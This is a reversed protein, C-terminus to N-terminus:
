PLAPSTTPSRHTRRRTASVVTNCTAVTRIATRGTRPIARLIAMMSGASAFSEDLLLKYGAPVGPPLMAGPADGANVDTADGAADVAVPGSDVPTGGTGRDAGTAADSGGSGPNSGGSGSSADTGSMGSTGSVGGSGAEPGTAKNSSTCASGSALLLAGLFMLPARMAM